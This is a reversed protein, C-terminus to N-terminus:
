LKLNTSKLNILLLIIGSPTSKYLHFVKVPPSAGKSTLSLRRSVKFPIVPTRQSRLAETICDCPGSNQWNRQSSSLPGGTWARGAGSSSESMVSTKMIPKHSLLFGLQATGLNRFLTLQSIIVTHQKLNSYKHYNIICCQFVLASRKYINEWCQTSVQSCCKVHQLRPEDM